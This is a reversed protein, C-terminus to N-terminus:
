FGGFNAGGFPASFLIDLPRCRAELGLASPATERTGPDLKGFNVPNRRFIGPMSSGVRKPFSAYGHIRLTFVLADLAGHVLTGVMAGAGVVTGQVLDQHPGM